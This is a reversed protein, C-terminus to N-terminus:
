IETPNTRIPGGVYKYHRGVVISSIEMPSCGYEAALAKGTAGAARRRRITEVQTNTFKASGNKEGHAQRGAKTMDDVNGQRTDFRLHAPNCCLSNHCSHCTDLGPSRREGTSYTLALEHAGVMREGDYFRGYDKEVYGTWPWCEGPGRRDVQTWFQTVRMEVTILDARIGKPV